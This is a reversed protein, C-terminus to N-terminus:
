ENDYFYSDQAINVIDGPLMCRLLVLECHNMENHKPVEGDIPSLGALIKVSSSLDLAKVFVQVTLM